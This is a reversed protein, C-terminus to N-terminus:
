ELKAKRREGGNLWRIRTGRLRLSRPDIRRGEDLLRIAHTPDRRWVRNLNGPRVCDPEPSAFVQDSRCSIWAYSGRDNVVISGIKAPDRRDARSTRVLAADGEEDFRRADILEVNTYVAIPDVTTDVQTHAYAIWARRVAVAPFATDDSSPADLRRRAGGAKSCAYM